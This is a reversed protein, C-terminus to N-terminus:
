CNLLNNLEELMEEYCKEQRWIQESLHFLTYYSYTNHTLKRRLRSYIIKFYNQEGYTLAEESNKKVKVDSVYIKNKYNYFYFKKQFFVREFAKQSNEKYNMKLEQKQMSYITERFFRYFDNVCNVGLNLIKSLHETSCECCFARIIINITEPKHYQFMLPLKSIRKSIPINKNYFYINNRFTLKNEQTLQELVPFLKEQSTESILEIEDLSFKNLRKCLRLIKEKM